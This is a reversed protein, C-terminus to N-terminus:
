LRTVPSIRTPLREILAILISMSLVTGFKCGQVSALSDLIDAGSRIVRPHVSMLLTWGIHIRRRVWQQATKSLQGQACQSNWMGSGAFCGYPVGCWAAGAAFLDPYAGMLVNTMMGGSSTGTAFVRKPDVGYTKIAYRIASAIGLSDGGADHTLTATTHVDWCHGSDPADPYILMFNKLSDARNAYDTGTFYASASGGCYHIAVILAPNAVLGTPRYTYVRVNTPNSGFNSIQQLQNQAARVHTIALLAVGLLKLLSDFMKTPSQLRRLARLIRSLYIAFFSNQKKPVTCM